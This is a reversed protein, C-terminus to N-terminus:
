DQQYPQGSLLCYEAKQAERGIYAAHAVSLGLKTTCEENNWVEFIEYTLEKATRCKWTKMPEPTNSNGGAPTTTTESDDCCKIKIGNLDCIENNSNKMCSHFTCVIRQIPHDVKILFYGNSDLNCHRTSLYRDLMMAEDALPITLLSATSSSPLTTIFSASSSLLEDKIISPYGCIMQIIRQSKTAIHQNFFGHYDVFIRTFRHSPHAGSGLENTVFVYTVDWQQIMKDFEEKIAIFAQESANKTVNVPVDDGGGNNNEGDGGSGNKTLTFAEHKLMYNTLWLTVCDVLVVRSNFQTSHNSPHLTEEITTWHDNDRDAQHREIRRQYDSDCYSNNNDGGNSCNGSSNNSNTTNNDSTALYIPNKCLTECLTQAYKSKGSRCGGTILYVTSPM